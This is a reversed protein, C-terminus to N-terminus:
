VDRYYVRYVQDIQPSPLIASDSIFLYYMVGNQVNVTGPIFPITKTRPVLATRRHATVASTSDEVLTYVADHIVKIFGGEKYFPKIFSNVEPVSGSGPSLIDSVTLPVTPAPGAIQFIIHRIVNGIADGYYSTSQFDLKLLEIEDGTRMGNQTGQVTPFFIFGVLGASTVSITGYTDITKVPLKKMSSSIMSRVMQKM